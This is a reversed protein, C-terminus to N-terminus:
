RQWGGTPAVPDRVDYSLRRAACIRRRWGAQDARFRREKDPNEFLPRVSPKDRDAINKSLAAKEGPRSKEGPPPRM